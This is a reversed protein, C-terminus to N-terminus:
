ELCRKNIHINLHCFDYNFLNGRKPVFKIDTNDNNKRTDNM